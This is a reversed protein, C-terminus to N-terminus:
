SWILSALGFVVASSAAFWPGLQGGALSGMLGRGRAMQLAAALGVLSVSLSGCVIPVIASSRTLYAAVALMLVGVSLSTWAVAGFALRSEPRLGSPEHTSVDRM